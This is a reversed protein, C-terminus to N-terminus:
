RAEFFEFFQGFSAEYVKKVPVFAMDACFPVHRITPLKGAFRHADPGFFAVFDITKAKDTSIVLAMPACRRVIDVGKKDSLLQFLEGKLDM